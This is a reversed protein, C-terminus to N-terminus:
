EPAGPAVPAVLARAAVGRVAEAEDEREVRTLEAAIAEREGEAWELDDARLWAGLSEAAQSRVQPDEDNLLGLLAEGSSAPDRQSLAQAAEIRVAPEADQAANVLLGQAEESGLNRLAAVAEVRLAPSESEIRAGVLGLAAESRTNGLAEVLRQELAPAAGAELRAALEGAVEEALAPQTARAALYGLAQAALEAGETEQGELEASLFRRAEPILVGAEGLGLYVNQRLELPLEADRALELLARQAAPGNGLAIADIARRRTELPGRRAADLAAELAGPERIRLALDAVAGADSGLAALVESLPRQAAPRVEGGEETPVLEFRVEAALQSWLAALGARPASELRELRTTDLWSIAGAEGQILAHRESGTAKILLGRPDLDLELAGSSERLSGADSQYRRERRLHLAAGQEADVLYTDEASGAPDWAAVTWRAAAQRPLVVHLRAFWAKLIARARPQAVGVVAVGLVEGRPDTRVLVHHEAQLAEELTPALAPDLGALTLGQPRFTYLLQREEGGADCRALSLEGAGGLTFLERSDEGQFLSAASELEFVYRVEEGPELGCVLPVQGLLQPERLAPTQAPAREAPAEHAAAAVAAPRETEEGLLVAGLGLSILAALLGGAAAIKTTHTM